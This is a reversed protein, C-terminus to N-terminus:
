ELGFQLCSGWSLVTCTMVPWHTCCRFSSRRYIVYRELYEVAQHIGEITPPTKRSQTDQLELEAAVIERYTAKKRPAKACFSYWLWVTSTCYNFQRDWSYRSYRMWFTIHLHLKEKTWAKQSTQGSLTHYRSLICQCFWKGDPAPCLVHFFINSIPALLSSHMDHLYNYIYLIVLYNSVCCLFSYLLTTFLLVIICPLSRCHDM